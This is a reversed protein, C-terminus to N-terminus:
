ISQICYFILLCYFVQYAKFVGRINIEDSPLPPDWAFQVTTSDLIQLVRFNRPVYTPAIICVFTLETSSISITKYYNGSDGALAIKYEPPESADTGNDELLFSIFNLISIEIYFEDSKTFM